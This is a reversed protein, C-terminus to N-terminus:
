GVQCSCQGFLGGDIDAAPQSAKVRLEGAQGLVGAADAFNKAHLDFVEFFKHGPTVCYDGDASIAGHQTGGFPDHVIILGDEANVGTMQRKHCAQLAIFKRQELIQDIAFIFNIVAHKNIGSKDALSLNNRFPM